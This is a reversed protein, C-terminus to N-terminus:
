DPSFERKKEKVLKVNHSCYTCVGDICAALMALFSFVGVLLGEMLCKVVVRDLFDCFKVLSALMQM